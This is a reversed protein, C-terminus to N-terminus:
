PDGTLKKIEEKISNKESAECLGRTLKEKIWLDKIIFAEFSENSACKCKKEFSTRITKM